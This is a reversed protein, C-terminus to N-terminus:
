PNSSALTRSPALMIASRASGYMSAACAPITGMTPPWLWRCVPPSCPRAPRRHLITGANTVNAGVLMIRGGNGGGGAPSKLVAGAQVIVDGYKGSLPPPDPVFDPTGDAGGPVISAPSSSSRTATTSCARNSLNDNIPLSSVTLGRANVQSTGGFIVGNRNILYVQGDAKINGLIQTPNGTPDNVQNFAIWQGANAGGATQDFTLTTKKGVNFTQWNLLAQQTTQKITVNTNRRYGTEVPLDAGTWNAPDTAVDAALSSAAPASATLSTPSNSSPNAPQASTTPATRIAAARAAAQMARMADLTQSTRRLIDQANARAADTAAPTPAGGSAGAAPRAAAPLRAAASSTAPTPM